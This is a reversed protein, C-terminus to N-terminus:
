AAPSLRRACRSSTFGRGRVASTSPRPCRTKLVYQMTQWPGFPSPWPYMTGLNGIGGERRDSLTLPHGSPRIKWTMVRPWFRM